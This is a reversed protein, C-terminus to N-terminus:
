SFNLFQRESTPVHKGDVCLRVLNCFRTFTVVRYDTNNNNYLKKFMKGLYQWIM